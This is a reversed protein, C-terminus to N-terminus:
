YNFRNIPGCGDGKITLDTLQVGARV